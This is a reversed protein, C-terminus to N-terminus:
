GSYNQTILGPVCVVFANVTTSTPETGGYARLLIVSWTDPYTDADGTDIARSRELIWHSTASQQFGGSIAYTDTPCTASAGVASSGAASTSSPGLSYFTSGFANFGAPGTGGTPGSPGAGGTAGRV